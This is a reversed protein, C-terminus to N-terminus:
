HFRRRESSFVQTRVLRLSPVVVVSGPKLAITPDVVPTPQYECLLWWIGCARSMGQFYLAAIGWWTDGDIVTHFENDPEDQYRFPEREDLHSNGDSDEYEVCFRYRSSPFIPMDVGRGLLAV